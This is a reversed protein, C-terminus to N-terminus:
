HSHHTLFSHITIASHHSYECCLNSNSGNTISMIMSPGVWAYDVLEPMRQCLRLTWIYDYIITCYKALRAVHTSMHWQCTAWVTLWTISSWMDDEPTMCPSPLHRPSSFTSCLFFSFFFTAARHRLVLAYPWLVDATVSVENDQTSARQVGSSTSGQSFTTRFEIPSPKQYELHAPDTIQWWGLGLSNELYTIDFNNRTQYERQATLWVLHYWRNNIFEVPLNDGGLTSLVCYSNRLHLTRYSQWYASGQIHSPLDDQTRVTITVYDGNEPIDLTWSAM